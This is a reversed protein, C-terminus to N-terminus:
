GEKKNCNGPCGSRWCRAYTGDACEEGHAVGDEWLEHVDNNLDKLCSICIITPRRDLNIFHNGYSYLDPNRQSRHIEGFTAVGTVEGQEIGSNCYACHVIPRTSPAPTREEIYQRFQEDIEDWSASVFVVPEYYYDDKEETMLDYFTLRGQQIYPRVVLVIVVGDTYEITEGSFACSVGSDRLWAEDDDKSVSTTGM